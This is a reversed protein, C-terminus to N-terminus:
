VTVRVSVLAWPHNAPKWGCGGSGTLPILLHKFLHYHPIELPLKAMLLMQWEQLPGMQDGAGEHYSVVLLELELLELM